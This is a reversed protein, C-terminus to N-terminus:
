RLLRIAQGAAEGGSRLAGELTCPLGTATWDGALFLNQAMRPPPRLAEVQPTHFLTARKEKIVRRAVPPEVLDLARAVDAWLLDGIEEASREALDGAASVTVSVLNGRVFLWQGTGGLLGLFGASTKPAAALRFHANVIPSAPLTPLGPLLNAAIVWPVALILADDPGLTLSQDDFQLEGVGDGALVLRRLPHHLRLEAGAKSLAALAPAVFTESLGNRVLFPRSAAQSRWLTRALVRRFVRASAAEAPTNMVALALPEWFRRYNHSRGLRRTIGADAAAAMRWAATLLSPLLRAPTATWVRGSPLDLMPFAAPGPVLGDTAGIRELFAFVAANGGVVMHTGNDITVGLSPEVWSRCRGGAHGAAEHLVVPLGADAVKLAAALGALGAGVVHVTM